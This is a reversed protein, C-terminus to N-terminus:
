VSALQHLWGRERLTALADTIHRETFMRGKRPSWAQVSAVVDAPAATTSRAAVWHVSALLELGYATEYGEVLELVRNVRECTAPQGALVAEAADVAGPLLTLPEADHVPAAGDGHGSLFHGEVATLVHRLNDAYPGYMHAEYRLKLPEGAEQLFYMLKQTEVLGPPVLAQDTYRHVVSILAARGATMAPRTKSVAMSRAPPSGEPQFMLVEVEPSGAFAARIMPEVDRWDLGGQGCGLPPIAISAVGLDRVVNTLDALGAEIDVLRSDDKWHGKTPFNIVYRPGTMANTEWVHVKGLTLEGAKAAKRYADFMEPYAKKFQLAIGKGMVGVTNVTNVLAEADARLLDGHSERIM